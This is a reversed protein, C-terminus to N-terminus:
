FTIQNIEKLMVFGLLKAQYRNKDEGVRIRYCVCCLALYLSGEHDIVCTLDLSSRLHLSTVVRSFKSCELRQHNCLNKVPFFWFNISPKIGAM